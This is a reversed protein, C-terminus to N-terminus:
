SKRVSEPNCAGDPSPSLECDLLAIVTCPRGGFKARLEASMESLVRQEYTVRAMKDNDDVLAGSKVLGDLFQKAGGILNGEDTIKRKRYSTVLVTRPGRASCAEWAAARVMLSVANVDRHNARWHRRSTINQSPISYGIAFIM